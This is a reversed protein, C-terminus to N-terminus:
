FCEATDYFCGQPCYLQSLSSGKPQKTGIAEPSQSKAEQPRDAVSLNAGSM